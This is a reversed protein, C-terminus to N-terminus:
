LFPIQIMTRAPTWSNLLLIYKVRVPNTTDFHPHQYSKLFEFPLPQRWNDHTIQIVIRCHLIGDFYIKCKQWKYVLFWFWFSCNGIWKGEIVLELKTKCSAKCIIFWLSSALGSRPRFKIFFFSFQPEDNVKKAPKLLM